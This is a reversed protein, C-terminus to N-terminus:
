ILRGRFPGANRVLITSPLDELIDLLREAYDEEEGPEPLHFGLFVLEAERSHSRILDGVREDPGAVLVHVDAAIRIDELMNEFEREMVAAAEADEVISRLVIGVDQWGPAMRLLHALLLMLDGNSERGKWWVVMKPNHKRLGRGAPRCILTSKEFSALKRAVALVEGLGKAGEPWGLMVTNSELGAIGNAQAVTVMGTWLDTVTAVECFALLGEDHLLQNHREAIIQAPEHEEVDGVLLTSVTVIGRAQKFNSAM